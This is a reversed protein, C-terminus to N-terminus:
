GAAPAAIRGAIAAHIRAAEANGPELALADAALALADEQLGQAVAVQALGVLAPADPAVTAVAIWEDAASELYGRRLYIRAILERREREALEVREWLRHLVAFNDFDQVRLFTELGAAVSLAAPLPLTAPAPGGAVISAWAAYVAREHEAIGAAEARALAGALGSADGAAARAFLEVGLASADGAAADAAEAYRRQAVLAELIGVRADANRPQRALVARYWGEAVEPHGAGAYAAAALALASPKDVPLAAEVEAPRAGRAAMLTALPLAPAIYDPHEALARRYRAEAAAPEGTLEHLQGLLTLALAGGTGVTAHHRAPADGMALCREALRAAEALEGQDRACLALEFVLDTHDPLGALGEAIAARAGAPDGATRRARATRAVLPAAYGVGTWEGKRLEAWAADLLRRAKAPEELALHESGLNFAMFPTPREGAERELLELNRRSKDRDEIRGQLYGYHRVRIGTAEFRERLYTPMNRTKQEHIAGEFRYQPRHRWIRLALHTVAQGAGGQTYNTEVLEFGERWTRGLLERLMPGDEPVLHEDADLYMVWDGSAAELSVNRADAFSGNWPFHIVTAGFSTAIAVTRDSSGTDVVILEDVFPRVAELCGPLMEEEDKVIMCLSLTLGDAPRAAAALASARAALGRVAVGLAGSPADKVAGKRRTRAAAANRRADVLDPDLRLAAGFLAQAAPVEGLEYLMVGAYNLLVPEAPTRELHAVLPELALAFATQWRRVGRASTALAAEVLRKRLAHRRHPDEWREPEALLEAMRGEDGADAASEFALGLADLRRAWDAADFTAATPTLTTTRIGM